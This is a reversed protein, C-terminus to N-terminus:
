QDDEQTSETIEEDEIVTQKYEKKEETTNNQSEKTEALARFWTLVEQTNNNILHLKKLYSPSRLDQCLMHTYFSANEAVNVSQVAAILQPVILDLDNNALNKYIQARAQSWCNYHILHPNPFESYDDLSSSADLDFVDHANSNISFTIVGQLVISYKQKIFIKHLLAKEVPSFTRNYENSKNREYAEFDSAVYYQLPATIRVILRNDTIHIIEINKNNILANAITSLDTQQMAQAATYKKNLDMLQNYYTILSREYSRINSETSEISRKITQLQANQLRTQAKNFFSTINTTDVKILANLANIHQQIASIHETLKEPENFMNNFLTTFIGFFHTSFAVEDESINEATIPIPKIDLLHPMMILLTSILTTNFENSIICYQGERPFDKYVRIFHHTGQILYNELRAIRKEQPINSLIQKQKTLYAPAHLLHIHKYDTTNSNHLLNTYDELTTEETIDSKSIYQPLFKIPTKIYVSCLAPLVSYFSPFSSNNNRWNWANQELTRHLTDKLLRGSSYTYSPPMYAAILNHRLNYPVSILNNYTINEIIDM